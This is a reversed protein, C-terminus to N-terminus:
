WYWNGSIGAHLNIRMHTSGKCKWASFHGFNELCAYLETTHSVCQLATTSIRQIIWLTNIAIKDSRSAHVYTLTWWFCLRALLESPLAFLFLAFHQSLLSHPCQSLHYHNVGQVIGGERATPGDVDSDICRVQSVAATVSPLDESGCIFWGMWSQPLLRCYIKRKIRPFIHYTSHVHQNRHSKIKIQM